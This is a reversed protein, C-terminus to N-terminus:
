RRRRPGTTNISSPKDDEDEDKEPDEKEEKPESKALGLDVMRQHRTQEKSPATIKGFDAPSDAWDEGLLEEEKADEVLQEGHEAHFKVKPYNTM